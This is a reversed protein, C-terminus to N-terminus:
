VLYGWKAEFLLKAREYETDEPDTVSYTAKAKHNVVLNKNIGIRFGAQKIREIYDTDAFYGRFQEDFGGISEYVHRKMAFLSGFKNWEAIVPELEYNQDSTWCTAVDFGEDFVNLLRTLWKEPFTLDNNGIIIIDGQAYFLGMNSASSYGGNKEKRLTQIKQKFDTEDVFDVAYPSGDDIILIEEPEDDTTEILSNLCDITMEEIDENVFYCPLIFSIM